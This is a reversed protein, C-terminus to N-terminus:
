QSMWIEHELCSNVTFSLHVLLFLKGSVQSMGKGRWCSFRESTLFESRLLELWWCLVLIRVRCVRVLSAWCGGAVLRKGVRVGSVGVVGFFLLYVLRLCWFDIVPSHCFYGNRNHKENTTAILCSRQNEGVVVIARLKGLSSERAQDFAAVRLFAKKREREPPGSEQPPRRRLFSYDTM